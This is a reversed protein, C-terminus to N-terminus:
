LGFGGDVQIVNGTMYDNEILFRLAQRIHAPDGTRNMPINKKLSDFSERAEGAAPLIAGPAIANVRIAPAYLYAQQRTIEELFLKSVRYNQYKKSKNHIYADTINIIWGNKVSKAFAASLKLPVLTNVTLVRDFHDPASMDGTEFVSANNILGALPPVRLKQVDTIFKEPSETLDAQIFAVRGDGNFSSAAPEPSTRYHIVAHYGLDLCEKALELGIRDSAGTIVVTRQRQNLNLGM